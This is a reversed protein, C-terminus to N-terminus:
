DDKFGPALMAAFSVPKLVQQSTKWGDAADVLIPRGTRGAAQGPPPGRGRPSGHREIEPVFVSRMTKELGGSYIFVRLQQGRFEGSPPVTSRQCGTLGLGISAAGTQRLFQRRTLRLPSM